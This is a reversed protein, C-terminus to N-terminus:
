EEFLLVFQGEFPNLHAKVDDFFAPGQAAYYPLFNDVREMLNGGPFLKAKLGRIQNVSVEFNRKEARLLKGELAELAKIQGQKSGEVSSVLTPDVAKAKELIANFIRETEAKEEVLELSQVTRERVYRKILAEEEEFLDEKNLELKQL